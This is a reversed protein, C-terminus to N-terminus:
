VRVEPRLIRLNGDSLAFGDKLTRRGTTSYWGIYAFTWGRGFGSEEATATLQCLKGRPTVYIVNKRVTRACLQGGGPHVIPLATPARM